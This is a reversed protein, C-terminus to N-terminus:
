YSNEWKPKERGLLELVWRLASDWGRDWDDYLPDNNAREDEIMKVLEEVTTTHPLPQM